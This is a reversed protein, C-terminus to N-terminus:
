DARPFRQFHRNPPLACPPPVRRQCLTQLLHTGADHAQRLIRTSSPVAAGCNRQREVSMKFDRKPNGNEKVDSREIVVQKEDLQAITWKCITTTTKGDNGFVKLERGGCM